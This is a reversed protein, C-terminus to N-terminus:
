DLAESKLVKTMKYPYISQWVGVLPTRPHRPHLGKTSYVAATALAEERTVNKTLEEIM